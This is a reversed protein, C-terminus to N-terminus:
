PSERHRGLEGPQNLPVLEEREQPLVPVERDHSAVLAKLVHALLQQVRTDLDRHGMALGRDLLAGPSPARREGLKFPDLGDGTGRTLQM